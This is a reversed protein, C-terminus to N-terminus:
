SSKILRKPLNSPPLVSKLVERIAVWAVEEHYYTFDVTRSPGSRSHIRLIHFGGRALETDLGNVDSIHLEWRKLGTIWVIRDSYVVLKSVLCYFFPAFFIIEYSLIMQWSRFGHFFDESHLNSNWCMMVNPFLGLLFLIISFRKKLRFTKM